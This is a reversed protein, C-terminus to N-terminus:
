RKMILVRKEGKTIDEPHFDHIADMLVDYPYIFNEGRRTGVDNTIFHTEDYGRIVFVHYDPGEGSYFPNRLQRGALPVIIFNGQALERKLDELRPNDIIRTNTFQYFEHLLRETQEMDTDKYDGFHENQWEVMKLIDSKFQEKSLPQDMLGYYALAISAEECTEKWPENWDGDPAQAYFPLQLNIKAPLSESGNFSENSPQNEVREPKPIKQPDTQDNNVQEEASNEESPQMNSKGPLPTVPVTSKFSAENPSCAALIILGTILTLKKVM